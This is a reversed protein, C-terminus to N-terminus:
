AEKKQLADAMCSLLARTGDCGHEWYMIGLLGKQLLYECKAAISREDDYSIFEGDKYLWPAQAKDDWYRTWGNKGIYNAALEGYDPGGQGITGAPQFLGHDEDPVGGWRRAYFAAGIVIKEYPVGAAHFAEVTEAACLRPNGKESPYLATHHGAERCFGSRIDYTMLQVYDLPEQVKQMETDRIFRDSAGAAISVIKGPLADRLAWLLQTFTEKDRPDADINASANCPYEWDIDIGDLAHQDCIRACSEAFARRGDETLAMNSFGGAGWGGISLVLKIGPNWARIRPLCALHKCRSVDALGDKVLGFAINIHTLKRADAETVGPLARDTVYGLITPKM